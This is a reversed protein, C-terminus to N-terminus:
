PARVCTVVTKATFHKSADLVLEVYQGTTASGNKWSGVVKAANMASDAKM